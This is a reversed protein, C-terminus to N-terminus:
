KTAELTIPCLASSFSTSLSKFEWSLHSIFSRLAELQPGFCHRYRTAACRFSNLILASNWALSTLSAKPYAYTVSVAPPEIFKSRGSHCITGKSWSSSLIIWESYMPPLWGPGQDKGSVKSATTLSSFWCHNHQPLSPRSERVLHMSITVQGVSSCSTNQDGPDATDLIITSVGLERERDHERGGNRFSNLLLLSHSGQPRPDTWPCFSCYFFIYHFLDQSSPFPVSYCTPCDLSVPTPVHKCPCGFPSTPWIGAYMEIGYYVHHYQLWQCWSTVPILNGWNKDEWFLFKVWSVCNSIIYLCLTNM